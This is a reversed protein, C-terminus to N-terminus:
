CSPDEFAQEVLRNVELMHREFPLLTRAPKVLRVVRVEAPNFAFHRGNKLMHGEVVLLLWGSAQVLVSRRATHILASTELPKTRKANV